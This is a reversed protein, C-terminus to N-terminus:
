NYQMRREVSKDLGLWINLCRSILPVPLLNPIFFLNAYRQANLLTACIPIDIGLERSYATIVVVHEGFFFTKKGSDYGWSGDVASFHAGVGCDKRYPCYMHNKKCDGWEQSGTSDEGPDEGPDKGCHRTGFPSAHEYWATSDMSCSCVAPICGYEMSPYVGMLSVIQQHIMDYNYSLAMGSRFADYENKVKFSEEIVKNDEGIRMQKHASSNKNADFLAGRGYRARDGMWLRDSFDYHTSCSPTEGKPPCGALTRYFPDHKLLKSWADISYKAETTGKSGVFAMYSRLMVDAEFRHVGRYPYLDQFLPMLPDPDLLLMKMTMLIKFDSDWLPMGTRLRHERDAKLVQAIYREHGLWSFM